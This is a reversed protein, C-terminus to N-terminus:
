GNIYHTRVGDGGWVCREQGRAKVTETDVSSAVTNVITKGAVKAKWACDTHDEPLATNFAM